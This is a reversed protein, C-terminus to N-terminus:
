RPPRKGDPDRRDAPPEGDSKPEGDRRPEGRGRFGRKVSELRREIMSDRGSQQSELDERIQSIRRELLVIEQQHMQTRLDFHEGLLGRLTAEATKAAEGEPDARRAEAFARTAGLLEFGLTLDRVRLAKMEPNRESKIERVMPEMRDLIRGAIAPNDNMAGKIKAAFAANM